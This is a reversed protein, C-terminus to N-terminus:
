RLTIALLDPVGPTTGMAKLRGAQAPNRRWRKPSHCFTLLGRSQYVPLLQVVTRHLQEEPRRM